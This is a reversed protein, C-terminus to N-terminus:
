LQFERLQSATLPRFRTGSVTPGSSSSSSSSSESADMASSSTSASLATAAANAEDVPFQLANLMLELEEMRMLQQQVMQEDVWVSQVRHAIASAAHSQFLVHQLIPTSYLPIISHFCTHCGQQLNMRHFLPA